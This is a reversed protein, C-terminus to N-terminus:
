VCFLGFVVHCPMRVGSGPTYWAYSISISSFSSTM